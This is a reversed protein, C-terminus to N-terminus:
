NLFSSYAEGPFKAATSDCTERLKTYVKSYMDARQVMLSDLEKRKASIKEDVDQLEKSEHSNLALKSLYVETVSKLHDKLFEVKFGFQLAGRIADRWKLISTETIETFCTTDMNKLAACLVVFIIENVYHLPYNGIGIDPVSLLKKAYTELSEPVKFIGVSVYNNSAIEKLYSMGVSHSDKDDELKELLSTARKDFGRDSDKGDVKDQLIVTSAIAHNELEEQTQVSDLVGGYTAETKAIEQDLQDTTATIKPERDPHETKDDEISSNTKAIESDQEECSATIKPELSPNETASAEIRAAHDKDSELGPSQVSESKPVVVEAEMILTDNVLYGKTTDNLDSLPMFSTFGWDSEKVNFEHGLDKKISSKENYQNIVTFSFQAYRSWGNPLTALDSVDLYVSLYDVKNGKPFILIRWKYDGANFVESYIKKANLRTFNDIRWTFKTAESDSGM